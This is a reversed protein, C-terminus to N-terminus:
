GACLAQLFVIPARVETLPPLPGKSILAPLTPYSSHINSLCISAPPHFFLLEFAHVHLLTHGTLHNALFDTELPLPETSPAM